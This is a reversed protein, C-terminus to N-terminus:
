GGHAHKERWYAETGGLTVISLRPFSVVVPANYVNSLFLLRKFFYKNYADIFYTRSPLSPPSSVPPSVSQSQCRALARTLTLSLSVCRQDAAKM